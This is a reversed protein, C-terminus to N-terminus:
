AMSRGRAILNSEPVIPHPKGSDFQQNGSLTLSETGSIDGRHTSLPYYRYPDGKRGSGTGAWQGSTVGARLDGRLTRIGPVPKQDEPWHDKVDEARLGTPYDAFMDAIITKRNKQSAEQRSGHSKYGDPTLELVTLALRFRGSDPRHSLTCENLEIKKLCSNM